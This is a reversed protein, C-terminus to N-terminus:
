QDKQSGWQKVQVLIYNRTVTTNLDRKNLQANMESQALSNIKNTPKFVGM